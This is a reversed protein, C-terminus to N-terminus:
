AGAELAAIDALDQRAGRLRKLLILGERSVVTLSHGDWDARVCTEWAQTTTGPRVEIVDLLLVDPDGPVIKTFRHMAVEGQALLMPTLHRRRFGLPEVAVALRAIEDPPALLDIDVTARPRAHVSMALGGCLAFRIGVEDLSQIVARFNELLDPM